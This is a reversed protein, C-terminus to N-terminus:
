WSYSWCINYVSRNRQHMGGNQSSVVLISSSGDLFRTATWLAVGHVNADLRIDTSLRKLSNDPDHRRPASIACTELGRMRRAFGRLWGEM